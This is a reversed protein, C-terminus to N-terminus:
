RESEKQLANAIRALQRVVGSMCSYFLGMSVAWLFLYFLGKVFDINYYRM